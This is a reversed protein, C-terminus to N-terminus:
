QLGILLICTLPAARPAQMRRTQSCYQENDGYAWWESLLRAQIRSSLVEGSSVSWSRNKYCLFYCTAHRVNWRQQLTLSSLIGSCSKWTRLLIYKFFIKLNQFPKFIWPVVIEFFQNCVQTSRYVPQPVSSQVSRLSLKEL